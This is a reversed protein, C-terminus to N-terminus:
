TFAYQATALFPELGAPIAFLSTSAKACAAARARLDAGGCHVAYAYPGGTYSPVVDAAVAAADALAADSVGGEAWVSIAAFTVALMVENESCGLELAQQKASRLRPLLAKAGQALPSSSSLLGLKTAKQRNLFLSRVMNGAVRNRILEIFCDMEWRIADDFPKSLGGKVCALIAKYAPYHALQYATIGVSDFVTAAADGRSFDFPAESFVADRRDWPACTMRTSATRALREAVAILKSPSALEDVLKLELARRSTVPEGLLLMRIAEGVGIVRPLRQTGGAGPLLGLKIEPLGLEVGTEDAAVRAHCALALELGGGLALGNIAAVYPKRSKELRRFLQGLRGCVAHLRETSESRAAETFWRVMDLDAGAIFTGKGSTIVVAKISSTAEVTHLLHELSDMLEPSFVNVSRGPMDIRALLVGDEDLSTGINPDNM